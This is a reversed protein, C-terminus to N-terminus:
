PRRGAKRTDALYTKESYTGRQAVVGCLTALAVAFLGIAADVEGTFATAATLIGAGAVIVGGVAAAVTPRNNNLDPKM